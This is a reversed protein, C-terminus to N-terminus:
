MKMESLVAEVDHRDGAGIFMDLDEDVEKVKKGTRTKWENVDFFEPPKSPMIGLVVKTTCM